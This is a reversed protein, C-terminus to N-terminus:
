IVAWEENMQKEPVMSIKKGDPWLVNHFTTPFQVFDNGGMSMKYVVKNRVTFQTGDHFVCILEGEFGWGVLSGYFVKINELGGKREVISGIKDSNKSLYRKVIDDVVAAATRKAISEANPKGVFEVHRGHSYTGGTVEVMRGVVDRRIPDSRFFSYPSETPERDSLFKGMALIYSKAIQKVMSDAKADVVKRLASKVMKLGQTTGRPAEYRVKLDDVKRGMKIFPKLDKFANAIPIWEEVFEGMEKKLFGDYKSLKKSFSGLQHLGSPFSYYVDNATDAWSYSGGPQADWISLFSAQLNRGGEDMTRNLYDRAEKFDANWIERNQYGNDLISLLEETRKRRGAPVSKPIIFRGVSSAIRSTIRLERSM